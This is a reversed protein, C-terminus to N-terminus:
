GREPAAPQEEPGDVPDEPPQLLALGIAAGAPAALREGARGIAASRVWGSGAFGGFVLYHWPALDDVAPYIGVYISYVYSWRPWGPLPRLRVPETIAGKGLALLSAHLNMRLEASELSVGLVQEIQRLREYLTPRALGARQAALAKNGGSALYTGLLATLDTGAVSDHALLPGVEHEAFAQVRPDDRLQYLLGALGLDALWVVAQRLGLFAAAGAADSADRLAGRAQSLSAAPPGVGIVLLSGAGAESRLQDALQALVEDHDTGLPLALLSGARGDALTGTVAALGQGRCAAALAVTQGSSTVVALLERGAVPVGLAVIRARVEDLDAYGPGALAALLTSHALRVPSEERRGDAVSRALALTTATREALVETGADPMERTMFIVRAWDGDSGGVISVLWGTGADYGTRGTVSVSRARAAFGGLLVGAEEGAAACALVRHGLDALVVPVGALRGAQRVIEDQSAGAVALDTFVQHLREAARLQQVQADLIQAHVAETVAIFQTERELVILPLRHRRAATVLARPLERVYRSGLEVALGSVGVAALDAVYSALGDPDPPLAIGTSLVLEGGRLLHGSGALEMVHVWRVGADLRDAGALVRPSGRQVPDLALVDAVTPLM